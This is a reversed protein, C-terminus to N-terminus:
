FRPSATVRDQWWLSATLGTTLSRRCISIRRTRRRFRLRVRAKRPPVIHTALDRFTEMYAEFYSLGRDAVSSGFCREAHTMLLDGVGYGQTLTGDNGLNLFTRVTKKFDNRCKQSSHAVRDRLRLADQLRDQRRELASTYPRGGVFFVKALDMAALPSRLGLYRKNPDFQPDGSILQYAHAITEAKALRLSPSYGGDCKAGAVYRVLTLTVFEEWAEVVGMFALEVVRRVHEPHLSRCSSTVDADRSPIVATWLKEASEISGTFADRVHDVKPPRGAM